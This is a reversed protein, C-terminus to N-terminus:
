FGLLKTSSKNLLRIVMSNLVCSNFTAQSNGSRDGTGSCTFQASAFYALFSVAIKFMIKIKKPLITIRQAILKNVSWFLAMLSFM